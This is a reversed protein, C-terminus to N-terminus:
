EGKRVELRHRCFKHQHLLRRKLVRIFVAFRVLHRAHNFGRQFAPQVVHNYLTGKVLIHARIRDTHSLIFCVRIFVLM